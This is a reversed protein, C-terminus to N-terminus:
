SSKSDTQPTGQHPGAAATAPQQKATRNPRRRDRQLLYLGVAILALGALEFGTVAEGFVLLGVLVGTVPNVYGVLNARTPGSSYLIRFYLTYGLIGPLIVLFVLASLVTTPAGLRLPEGVLLAIAGVVVGAIAFQASLLWFTTASTATRRLLVSGTAFTLVAAFVLVSGILGGAHPAMLGPLVLVTVGAFGILLGVVGPGGFREAPLLRYGILASALPASATLVAALGGSISTEGLYLLAGYGAIMFLGGFSLAPVLDAKSPRPSRVFIAIPALAASTLLYRIAAFLLPPAGAVIGARIVPFAAGWLMGLLVVLLLDSGGPEGHSSGAASTTPGPAVRPASDPM